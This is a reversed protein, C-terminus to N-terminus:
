INNKSFKTYSFLYFLLHDERMGYPLKYTEALINGDVRFAHEKYITILKKNKVTM